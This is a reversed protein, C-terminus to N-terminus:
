GATASEASAAAGRLIRGDAVLVDLDADLDREWRAGETSPGRKGPAFTLGVRWGRPTALWAIRLPDTVSTRAAYDEPFPM